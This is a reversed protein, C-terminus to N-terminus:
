IYYLMMRRCVNYFKKAQHRDIEMCKIEEHKLLKNLIHSIHQPNVKIRLAIESRALPKKAQELCDIVEAQGM